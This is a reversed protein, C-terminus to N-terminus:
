KRKLVCLCEIHPTHPFQDFGKTLTVAFKEQLYMLDSKQTEPNCSLYILTTAPLQLIKRCLTKGLGARPPDVIITDCAFIETPPTKLFEESSVAFFQASSVNNLAANEKAIAIAEANLEVGILSQVKDAMYIGISGVGCFLDAVNAHEPVHEKIEDYMRKAALPNPQFFSNPTILFKKDGITELITPKGISLYTEGRSDDFIDKRIMWHTSTIQFEAHLIDLANRIQREQEPNYATSTLVIAMKENTNKAERLVLYRLVGINGDCYPIGNLLERVRAVFPNAWQAFLFCDTINVYSAHDKKKRFGVIGDPGFVYDMRNRYYKTQPSAIIEVKKNFVLELARNKEQLQQEYPINQLSCGGCMGFHSCEM